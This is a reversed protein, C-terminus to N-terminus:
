RIQKGRSRRKKLGRATERANEPADAAMAEYFKAHTQLMRRESPSLTESAERRLREAERLFDFDSTMVVIM